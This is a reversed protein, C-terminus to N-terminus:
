VKGSIVVDKVSIWPYSASGDNIREKSIATINKLMEFLNMSIMVENVPYKVKGNEVYYSNKAVGSIDGNDNPSGGSFRTLLIGKDISKIIEDKSTNGAALELNTGYDSARELNTKRAGYDSLLFSKLVGKEIVTLNSSKYADPTFPRYTIFDDSVPNATLTLESVAIEKNLKDKLKSTDTYMMYDSLHSTIDNIFGGLADPTIVISGTFKDNLKEVNIQEQNQKLLEDVNICDIMPKDLKTASFSTYNFSSSHEGDKGTFMASFEYYGNIISLNVGHSNKKTNINKIFNIGGEELVVKPYRQKVKDIFEILRDYMLQHDPKDLGKSYNESISETNLANADDEPSSNTINILKDCVNNITDKDIQNTETTGKKKGILAKLSLSIDDTSRLLSIKGNNFYLEDQTKEALSVEVQEAGKKIATNITYDLIDNKM